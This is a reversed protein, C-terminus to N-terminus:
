SRSSVQGHQQGCSKDPEFILALGFDAICATLDSQILVNKSKFDRHAVAPKLDAKGNAPIEEHLFTLGRGISLAIKCLEEWSVTNTKLFDYLSGKEHYETALWFETELNENRQDVGLFKLINDHGDLQPLNYINKEALWSMKEKLPFIKVAVMKGSMKGKWVAGFRGSGIVGLLEIPTDQPLQPGYNQPGALGLAMGAERDSTPLADFAAAKRKRWVFWIQFM